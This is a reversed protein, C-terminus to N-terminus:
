YGQAALIRGELAHTGAKVAAAANRAARTSRAPRPAYEAARARKNLIIAIEENLHRRQPGTADALFARVADMDGDEYAVVAEATADDMLDFYADHANM